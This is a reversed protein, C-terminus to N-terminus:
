LNVSWVENKGNWRRCENNEVQKRRRKSAALSISLHYLSRSLMSFTQSCCWISCFDVAFMKKENKEESSDRHWSEDWWKHISISIEQQNLPFYSSNRSSNSRKLKWTVEHNEMMTEVDPTHTIEEVLSSRGKQRMWTKCQLKKKLLELIIQENECRSYKEVINVSGAALTYLIYFQSPEFILDFVSDETKLWLRHHFFAFPIVIYILSPNRFSLFKIWCGEMSM